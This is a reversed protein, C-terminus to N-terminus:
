SAGTTPELSTLQWSGEETYTVTGVPSDSDIRVEREMRIPLHDDVAFWFHVVDTGTQAGSITREQRHHRTEVQEGDVELSEIGVFTYPGTSTSEGAAQTNTGTCRQDWSDGPEAGPDIMVAPPDCTFTSTNEVKTAGFDWRQYTQGGRDTVVEGDPCYTWDQWHAENYDVTVTWCGEAAAEVTVPVVDGDRQSVPPFSIAERGEGAAEYVGPAPGDATADGEGPEFEDVAEGIDKAKPDERTAFLVLPVVVAVVVAAVIGAIWWRWRREGAV